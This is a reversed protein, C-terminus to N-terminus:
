QNMKAGMRSMDGVVSSFVSKQSWDDMEVDSSKASGYDAQDSESSIDVQSSSSAVSSRKNQRLKPRKSRRKSVKSRSMTLKTRKHLNDVFPFPLFFPDSM